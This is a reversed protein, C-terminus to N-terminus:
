VERLDRLSAHQCGVIVHQEDEVCGSGCLRHVCADWAPHSSLYRDTEVCLRHSGTRLRALATIRRRPM